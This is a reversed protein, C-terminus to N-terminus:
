KPELNDGIHTVKSSDCPFLQVVKTLKGEPQIPLKSAKVEPVVHDPPSEAMAKKLTQLDVSALLANAIECSKEIV